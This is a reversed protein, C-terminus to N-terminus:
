CNRIKLLKVPGISQDIDHIPMVGTEDNWGQKNCQVNPVIEKLNM